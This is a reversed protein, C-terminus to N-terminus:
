KMGVDIDGDGGSPECDGEPGVKTTYKPEHRTAIWRRLEGDGDIRVDV